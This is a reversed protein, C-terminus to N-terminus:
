LGADLKLMFFWEFCKIKLILLAKSDWSGRSWYSQPEGRDGLAVHKWQEGSGGLKQVDFVHFYM